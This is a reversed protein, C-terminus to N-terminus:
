HKAARGVLHRLSDLLAPWLGTDALGRDRTASNWTYFALGHDAGHTRFESVMRVILHITPLVHRSDGFAQIIPPIRQTPYVARFRALARPIALTDFGPPRVPYVDLVAWDFLPGAQRYQTLDHVAAWVVVVPRGPDLTKCLRYGLGVQSPLVGKVDPEDVLLWAGISPSDRWRTITRRVFATDLRHGRLREVSAMVHLGLASSANLFAAVSDPRGVIKVGGYTQIWTFGARVADALESKTPAPLPPKTYGPEVGWLIVPDPPSVTGQSQVSPGWSPVRFPGVWSCPLAGLSVCMLVKVRGPLSSQRSM